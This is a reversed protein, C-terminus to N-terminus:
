VGVCAVVYTGVSGYPSAAYVTFGVGDVVDGVTFTLEEIAADEARTGIATAVIASTSTVWTQGTVVTSAATSGPSTGFDVNVLTGNGGGGGSPASGRYSGDATDSVWFLVAYIGRCAVGDRNVVQVSFHRSNGSESGVTVRADLVPRGILGAADRMWRAADQQTRAVEKRLVGPIIPPVSM